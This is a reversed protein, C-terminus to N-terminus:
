LTYKRKLNKLAGKTELNLCIILLILVRYPFFVKLIRRWSKKQIIIDVIYKIIILLEQFNESSDAIEDLVKNPASWNELSTADYLAREL